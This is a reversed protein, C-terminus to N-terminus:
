IIIIFTDIVIYNKCGYNMVMKMKKGAACLM